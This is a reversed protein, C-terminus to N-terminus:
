SGDMFFGLPRGRLCGATLECNGRRLLYNRHINCAAFKRVLTM